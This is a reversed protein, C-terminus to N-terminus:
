SLNIVQETIESVDLRDYRFFLFDINFESRTIKGGNGDIVERTETEAFVIEVKSVTEIGFFVFM